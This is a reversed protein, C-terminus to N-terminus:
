SAQTHIAVAAATLALFLVLEIWATPSPRAASRDMAIINKSSPLTTVNHIVLLDEHLHWMGTCTKNCGTPTQLQCNAQLEPWFPALKMHM